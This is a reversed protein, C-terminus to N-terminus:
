LRFPTCKIQHYICSEGFQWILAVTLYVVYIYPVYSCVYGYSGVFHLNQQLFDMVDDTGSKDYLVLQLDIICHCLLSFLKYSYTCINRYIYLHLMICGIM